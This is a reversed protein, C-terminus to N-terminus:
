KRGPPKIGASRRSRRTTEIHSRRPVDMLKVRQGYQPFDSDSDPEKVDEVHLEVQVAAPLLDLMSGDGQFICIVM